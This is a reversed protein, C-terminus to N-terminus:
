LSQYDSNLLYSKLEVRFKRFYRILKLCLPLKTRLKSGQYFLSKHGIKSNFRPKFFKNESSRTHYSHCRIVNKVSKYYNDFNAPLLNNNFKFM